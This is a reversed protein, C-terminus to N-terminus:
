LSDKSPTSSLYYFLILNAIFWLDKILFHGGTSLITQPSIASDWTVLFTQTVIFVAGSMIIAPMIFRPNLMAVVLLLVAILDYVGIINSTMQLDWVDYMWSMLPSSAVLDEIGKAELLTFKMGGIWLLVIMVPIVQIWRNLSSPTNYRYFFMGVSFLAFYKITGQGSGIAPFGGLSDIWMTDALLSFLPVASILMLWLGLPQYFQQKKLAIAALIATILFGVSAMGNFVTAPLMSSLRYFDTVLTIHKHEGLLLSSVGLLLTSLAILVLVSKTQFQETM